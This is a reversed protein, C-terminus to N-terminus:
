LPEDCYVATFKKQKYPVPSPSINSVTYKKLKKNRAKVFMLLIAMEKEMKNRERDSPVRNNKADALNMYDNFRKLSARFLAHDKYFSTLVKNM